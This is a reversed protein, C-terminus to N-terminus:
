AVYVNTGEANDCLLLVGAIINFFILTCIKFGTGIPARCKLKKCYVVLMPLMWALPALFIFDVVLMSFFGERVGVLTGILTLLLFMAACLAVIAMTISMLVLAAIRLGSAKPAPKRPEDFCAYMPDTPCGCKVCVVAEDPLYADCKTCYKM